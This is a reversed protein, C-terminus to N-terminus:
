RGAAAAGYPARARQGQAQSPSHRCNACLQRIGHRTRRTVQVTRSTSLKLRLLEATREEIRRMYQQNEIELQQFDM